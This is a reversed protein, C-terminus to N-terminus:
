RKGGSVELDYLKKEAIFELEKLMRSIHETKEYFDKEDRGKSLHKVSGINSLTDNAEECCKLCTKWFKEKVAASM